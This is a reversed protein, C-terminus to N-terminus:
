CSGCDSYVIVGTMIVIKLENDFNVDVPKVLEQSVLLGLFCCGSLAFVALNNGIVSSIPSRLGVNLYSKRLELSIIKCFTM